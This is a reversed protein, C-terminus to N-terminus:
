PDSGDDDPSSSGGSAAACKCKCCNALPDSGKKRSDACPCAPCPQPPPAVYPLLCPTPRPCVPAPLAPCMKPCAPCTSPSTAGGGYAKSLASFAWYPGGIMIVLGAAIAIGVGLAGLIWQAAKRWGSPGAPAPPPPPAGGSGAAAAANTLVIVAVRARDTTGYLIVLPFSGDSTFGAPAEFLLEVTAGGAATPPITLPSNVFAVPASGVDVAYTMGPAADPGDVRLAIYFSQGALGVLVVPAGTVPANNIFMAM